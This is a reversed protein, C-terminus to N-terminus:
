KNSLTHVIDGDRSERSVSMNHFTLKWGEGRRRFTEVAGSCMFKNHAETAETNDM